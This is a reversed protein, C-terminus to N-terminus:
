EIKKSNTNISMLVCVHIVLNYLHIARIIGGEFVLLIHIFNPM